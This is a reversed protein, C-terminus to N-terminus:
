KPPPLNEQGKFNPGFPPQGLVEALFTVARQMIAWFLATRVQKATSAQFREHGM